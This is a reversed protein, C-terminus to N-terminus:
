TLYTYQPGFCLCALLGVHVTKMVFWDNSEKKILLGKLETVYHSNVQGDFIINHWACCIWGLDGL